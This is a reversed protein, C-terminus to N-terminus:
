PHSLVNNQKQTQNSLIQKWFKSKIFKPEMSDSHKRLRFIIVLDYSWIVSFAILIFYITSISVFRFMSSFLYPFYRFNACTRSTLINNPWRKSITQKNTEDNTNKQAHANTKLSEPIQFLLLSLFEQVPTFM